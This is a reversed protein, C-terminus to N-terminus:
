ENFDIEDFDVDKLLLDLDLHDKDYDVDWSTEDFVAEETGASSEKAKKKEAEKKKRIDGMVGAFCLILGLGIIAIGVYFANGLLRTIFRSGPITYLVRGIVRDHGTPQDETNNDDGKTTYIYVAYEKDISVVRHTVVTVRDRAFYTIADGVSIKDQPVSQVVIISGTPINPEMSGSAIIFFGTGWPSLLMEDRFISGVVVMVTLVLALILAIVGIIKLIKKIM